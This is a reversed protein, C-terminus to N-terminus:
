VFPFGTLFFFSLLFSILSNPSSLTNTSKSCLKVSMSDSSRLKLKVRRGPKIATLTFSNKKRRKERCEFGNPVWFEGKTQGGM